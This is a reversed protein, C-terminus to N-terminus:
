KFPPWSSPIDSCSETLLPNSTRKLNMYDFIKKQAKFLRYYIEVQEISARRMEKILVDVKQQCKMNMPEFFESLSINFVSVISKLTLLSLDVDGREIKYITNPSIHAKKALEELSMDNIERRKKINKAVVRLFNECYQRRYERQKSKYKVTM